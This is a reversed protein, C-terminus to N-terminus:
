DKAPPVEADVDAEPTGTDTVVKGIAGRSYRNTVGPAVELTVSEDDSGVVTGYLGGITLVQTGVDVSHQMQQMEKRKRSQPRIVVLYMVVLLGVMLLLPM